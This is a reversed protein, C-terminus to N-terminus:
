NGRWTRLTGAVGGSLLTARFVPGVRYGGMAPNVAMGGAYLGAPLFTLHGKASLSLSPFSYFDLYPDFTLLHIIFLKASSFPRIALFRSM